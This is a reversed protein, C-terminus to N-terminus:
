APSRSNWHISSGEGMSSASRVAPMASRSATRVAMARCPSRTSSSRRCAPLREWSSPKALKRKRDVEWSKRASRVLRQAGEWNEALALTGASKLKNALDEHTRDMYWTALLGLVLLILLLALGIQERKM